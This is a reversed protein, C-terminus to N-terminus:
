KTLKINVGLMLYGLIFHNTGLHINIPRLELAFRSKGPNIGLGLSMNNGFYISHFYESQNHNAEPWGGTGLLGRSYNGFAGVTTVLSLAKYKILDYHFNLGLTTIRYFQDRTDSIGFPWFGGTMMYPNVRLKNKKGFSKQWGISYILGM